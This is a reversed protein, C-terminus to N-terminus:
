QLGLKQLDEEFAQTLGALCSDRLMEASEPPLSEFDAIWFDDPLPHDAWRPHFKKIVKHSRADVAALSYVVICQVKGWMKANLSSNLRVVYSQKYKTGAEWAVGLLGEGFMRLKAGTVPRPVPDVPVHLLILHVDADSEPNLLSLQRSLNSFADDVSDFNITELRQMQEISVVDIRRQPNALRETIKAGLASNSRWDTQFTDTPKMFLGSLRSGFVRDKIDPLFTISRANALDVRAADDALAPVTACLSLLASLIVLVRHRNAASARATKIADNFHVRVAAVHKPRMMNGGLTTGHILSIGIETGHFGPL